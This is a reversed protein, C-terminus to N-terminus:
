LGAVYRGPNLVAHPDFRQKYLALLPTGPTEGWVDLQAQLLAPAAEVVVYGHWARVQARLTALWRQVTVALAATWPTTLAIHAWIQGYSADAVWAPPSAAFAPTIALADLAAALCAPAVGLRLRVMAPEPPPQTQCWADRLAWLPASMGTPLTVDHLAGHQHCLARSADLQRTVAESTGDYNLLLTIHPAPASVTIATGWAAVAEAHLLLVASPLLPTRQLAAIVAHAATLAPFVAVLTRDDAPLTALRYTTELVVGFAGLSGLFLKNMDYGAVNKVVRGGFHVLSGDPLIVRLGLLLDRVGGYRRRKPGSTNTVLLGGLSATSAAAGLPLFQQQAATLAYAAGVSVGAEAILIQNAHDYEVVRTLQALSLAVDYRIPAAGLHMQTGQGWPVVAFRERGTLAVIAAAQACDTPQVVLRPAQGYIAHQARPDADTWVHAAGVLDVLHRRLAEYTMM